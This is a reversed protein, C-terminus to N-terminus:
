ALEWMMASTVYIKFASCATKLTCPKRIFNKIINPIQPKMACCIAIPVQRLFSKIVKKVEKDSLFPLRVIPIAKISTPFLISYVSFYGDEGSQLVFTRFGLEYGEQCCALIDEKDLRYRSCPSSKRIGCYLCDNKCINSFEILGRVFIDKGYISRVVRSAKHACYEQIAADQHQILYTYEELSLTHERSLKDIYEISKTNM